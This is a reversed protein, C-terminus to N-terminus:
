KLSDLKKKIVNLHAETLNSVLKDLFENISSPGLNPLSENYNNNVWYTQKNIFDKPNTFLLDSYYMPVSYYPLSHVSVRQSDRVQECRNYFLIMEDITVLRWQSSVNPPTKANDIDTKSVPNYISQLGPDKRPSIANTYYNSKFSVIILDSYFIPQWEHIFLDLYNSLSFYHKEKENTQSGFAIQGISDDIEPISDVVIPSGTSGERNELYMQLEEDNVPKKEVRNKAHVNVSFNLLENEFLTNSGLLTTEM